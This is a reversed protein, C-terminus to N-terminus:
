AKTVSLSAALLSTDSERMLKREKMPEALTPQISREWPLVDLSSHILKRILTLESSVFFNPLVVYGHEKFSSAIGAPPRAESAIFLLMCLM